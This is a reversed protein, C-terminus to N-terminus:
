VPVAGRWNAIATSATRLRANLTAEASNVVADLTPYTFLRDFVDIDQMLSLSAPGTKEEPLHLRLRTRVQAHHALLWARVVSFRDALSQNPGYRMADTVVESFHDFQAAFEEMSRDAEVLPKALSM